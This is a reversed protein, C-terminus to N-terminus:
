KSQVILIAGPLVKPSKLGNLKQIEEPTTDHIKAIKTLNDGPKVKYHVIKGQGKKQNATAVKKVPQSVAAGKVAPSQTKVSTRTNQAVKSECVQIKMGQKPYPMVKKGNWRKLDSVSVGYQNAISSLTDGRKVVYFMSKPPPTKEAVSTKEVWKKRPGAEPELALDDSTSRMKQVVAKLEEDSPTAASGDSPVAGEPRDKFATPTDNLSKEETKVPPTQPNAAVMEGAPLDSKEPPAEPTGREAEPASGEIALDDYKKAPAQALLEGQGRNDTNEPALDSAPQSKPHKKADKEAQAQALREQKAQKEL